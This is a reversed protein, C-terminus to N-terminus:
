EVNRYFEGREVDRSVVSGPYITAYAGIKVGPLISVNIGTKAHGGIIAGLKRRGTPVRVGKVRMTVEKEDFRLNATITGAGLNVEECIVSDGVYNLHPLKAGEMVVSEKVQVFAGVKSKKGLVSYPRIHAMPGVETDSGIYAPGEIVTGSYVEAGEDIYVKGILKVGEQVIGKVESHMETEMLQRNAEIVQWPRGVDMWLGEHVVVNVKTHAVMLNIADTLELENRPSPVLKDIYYFIDSSLKYIGGNIVNSSPNQPKEEIKELKNGIFSLVGFNSPNPVKVGLVANGPISIVKDIAASDFLLDGYVVLIQDSKINLSSLAAATGMPGPKQLVVEADLFSSKLEQSGIVVVDDVYKRLIGIARGLLTTGLVPILPKPRTQTIPELREGRGAALVM